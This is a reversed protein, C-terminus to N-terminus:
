EIWVSGWPPVSVVLNDGSVIYEEFGLLNHLILGDKWGLEKVPLRLHRQAASANIVVLIAEDGLTRAFAYVNRRDDALVRRYTGRRLAVYRKRLSILTRLWGRLEELWTEQNWNFAARCEPDKGGTMGIEDGYYVAPAGPYAFIFSYALKLKNLDGNLRTYIRETDHSGLTSYMAYANERPYRKLIGEVQDAFGAATIFGGNLFDLVADRLPYNMLGDFHNPGVWRPEVTWIEGVLYADRNILKVAERFELWFSDDDIENPVDLRWGDSGQDIWYRAVNLLYRRVAQNNTNFKPLSKFGWWAKFDEAKGPSYADVPFKNVHFWDRYSSHDQNELVDNFGFFGRGCHNFVGDLIVRVNNSHATELLAHFDELTGVRPDIKFYDVTNYRHNSTSLFIPNLYIANVGLDLIYDFKDIVGRLDGGQFGWSTPPSGWSQVNPPDNHTDGNAFRDPFIQYFIADEVWYPVTM